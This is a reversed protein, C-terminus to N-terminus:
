GRAAKRVFPLEVVRAELRRGRLEIELQTHPTLDASLLGLGIGCGLSPSFNGSSLTGLNEEGRWVTSGDRLPQRTTTAVGTLFRAPGRDREAEVASRGRFTPKNWGIVWGLRAELTTSTESLEHGYLPLAAELRLTDRAGLGAPVIGVELLASWITPADENAVRIEVGDEGTYGTGAVVVDVGRVTLPRLRFRGVEALDPDITALRERAKPGQVALVCRSATVDVGGLAELVGSTNSANPMVDFTTEDLWWVIIDDVVFGADNLLHTYQARAPGIKTLDNTLANQLTDFADAGEVRVTGLHSVDFVVADRRCALHENVTGTPYALPMDFGGFPVMKAGLAVHHDYLFTRAANMVVLNPLAALSRTPCFWDTVRFSTM